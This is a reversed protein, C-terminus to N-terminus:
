PKAVDLMDSLITKRYKSELQQMYELHEGVKFGIIPQEKLFELLEKRQMTSLIDHCRHRLIAVCLYVQYDAGLVICMCIYHCIEQWDLYNWFCQRFWQQCIQGPSYGSMRFASYLHPVEAQLICEIYHCSSSFWPPIGSLMLQEPLHVSCHLRNIWLYASTALSSFTQLFKWAKDTNGHMMLYITALFWDFGTSTSQLLRLRSNPCSRQQQKWYLQVKKVLHTLKDKSEGNMAVLNLRSGYRITMDIGLQQTPTLKMSKLTSDKGKYEMLPFIAEEKRSCLVQSLQDLLDQLVEGNALDPKTTLVSCFTKRCKELWQVTNSNSKKGSSLFRSLDSEQKIATKTAITCCYEKPIPFSSFLPFQFVPSGAKKQFEHDLTRPPLIRESPGGTQYTKVLLYNRELSLMDIVIESSDERTNEKQANLLVEQFKYQTQLLLMTDLCSSMLSMLRLGFVHSQEFNFLSHAKAETDVLVIRDIVGAFSDPIERLTYTDKTPLPVGGLIENVAVYSSLVNALSLFIKKAAKDIPEVPWARPIHVLHDDGSELINWLNYIITPLLATNQLAVIGPSTATIQSMMYGYGFKEYKSVQMKRAYRNYLYTICEYMCGTQQLLLLGKPTAAFNLLNDRLMDEWLVINASSYDMNTDTSPTPTDARDAEQSAVKWANAITTHLGYQYIIQLGECTTYLQRCVFVTNGVVALAPSKPYKAGLSGSLARKSFESLVHVASTRSASEADADEGYLLHSRGCSTSAIQALIDAVHLLSVEPPAPINADRSENLWYSVPNLLAETVANHCICIRCVAESSCLRRIMDVVLCCPEYDVCTRNHTCACNADTLLQILTVVVKTITVPEDRDKLKIPFFKRGHQFCLLRSLLSLSHIFYVFELQEGTYIGNWNDGSTSSSDPCRAIDKQTIRTEVYSSALDYLMRLWNSKPDVLALFHGPTIVASAGTKSGTYLSLLSLTSEIVEDLFKEPYRVWYQPVQQQFENMLRFGKLLKIMEPKRCDLGTKVSRVNSKNVFLFQSSLFEVLTTYIERTSPNNTSLSKAVFTLSTNWLLQDSDALADQIGHRIHSWVDCNQIDMSTIRLLKRVSEHRMEVPKKKDLKELITNFQDQHMFMVDSTFGFTSKDSGEAMFETDFNELLYNCAASVESKLSQTLQQCMVITILPMDEYESCQLIKNTIKTVLTEQNVTAENPAISHREIEEDILNGLTSDIKARLRKVFNYKHFNEDNEEMHVLAPEAQEVSGADKIHPAFSPLLQKLSAVLEDIEAGTTTMILSFNELRKKMRNQQSIQCSRSNHDGGNAGFGTRIRGTTSANLTDEFVQQCAREVAPPPLHNQISFQAAM